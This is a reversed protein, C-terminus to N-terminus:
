LNISMGITFIRNMPYNKGGDASVFVLEPDYFSPMRTFTLLNEGSFYIQLKSLKLPSVISEPLDYSLTINKVRLYSANLLYRDTNHILTKGRFDNNNGM